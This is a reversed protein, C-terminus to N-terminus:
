LYMLFTLVALWPQTVSSYAISKQPRLDNAPGFGSLFIRGNYETAFGESPVGIRTGARCYFGIRFGVSM